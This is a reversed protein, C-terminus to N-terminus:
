RSSRLDTVDVTAHDQLVARRFAAAGRKEFAEAAPTEKNERLVRAYNLMIKATFRSDPGFADTATQLAQEFMRESEQLKGLDALTCAANNLVGFMLAPRSAGNSDLFQIVRESEALSEARHGEKDLVMALNIRVEEIRLPTAGPTEELLRIAERYYNEAQKYNKRARLMTARVTLIQVEDLPVSHYRELLSDYQRLMKEAVDFQDCECLAGLMSVITNFIYHPQTGPQKEWVAIARMYNARSESCHGWDRYINGLQYYSVALRNDAGGFRKAIQVGRKASLEAAALKHDLFEEQAAHAQIGWDGDAPLATVPDPNPPTSDVAADLRFISITMLFPITWFKM